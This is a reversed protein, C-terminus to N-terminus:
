INGYKKAYEYLKEMSMYMIKYKTLNVSISIKKNKKPILLCQYVLAFVSQVIRFSVIKRIYWNYRNVFSKKFIPLNLSKAYKYHSMYNKIVLWTINFYSEKLSKIRAGVYTQIQLHM